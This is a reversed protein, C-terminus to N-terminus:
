ADQLQELRRVDELEGTLNNRLCLTAEAITTVIDAYGELDPVIVGAALLDLLAREIREVPGLHDHIRMEAPSM